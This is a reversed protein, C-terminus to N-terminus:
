YAQVRSKRMQISFDEYWQGAESGHTTRKWGYWIYMHVYMCLGGIIKGCQKRVIPLLFTNKSKAQRTVPTPSCIVGNFINIETVTLNTKDTSRCDSPPGTIALHHSQNGMGQEHGKWLWHQCIFVMRTYPPIWVVKGNTNCRTVASRGSFELYVHKHYVYHYCIFFTIYKDSGSDGCNAWTITVGSENNYAYFAVKLKDWSGATVM